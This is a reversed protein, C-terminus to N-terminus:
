VMKGEEKGRGALLNFVVASVALIIAMILNATSYGNIMIVGYIMPTLTRIINEWIIQMNVAQAEPIEGTKARELFFINEYPRCVNLSIQSITIFVVPWLYAPNFVAFVMAGALLLLIVLYSRKKGFTGVTNGIRNELLASLSGM